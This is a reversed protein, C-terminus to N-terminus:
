TNIKWLEFVQHVTSNNTLFAFSISLIQVPKFFNDPSSSEGLNLLFLDM